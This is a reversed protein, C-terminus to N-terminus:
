INGKNQAAQVPVTVVGHSLSMDRVVSVENEAIHQRVYDRDSATCGAM